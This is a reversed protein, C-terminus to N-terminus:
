AIDGALKRSAIRGARPEFAPDTRATAPETREPRGGLWALDSFIECFEAVVEDPDLGVASAYSRVYARSYLGGPWRTCDGAELAALMSRNIKTADAIAQISVGRRERQHRLKDGFDQATM